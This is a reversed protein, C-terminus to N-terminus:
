KKPPFFPQEPLKINGKGVENLAIQAQPNPDLKWRARWNWLAYDSCTGGHWGIWQRFNNYTEYSQQGWRIDPADLDYIRDGEDPILRQYVPKSTDMRWDPTSSQAPFGDVWNHSWVEREFTWGSKVIRSVGKPFLTAIPVVKASAGMNRVFRGEEEDVISETLSPYVVAGLKDSQDRTGPDFPAAGKPRMGDMKIEISAWLIWIDVSESTPGLAASVRFTKSDACSVQRQNPKGEVPAGGSWQIQEWEDTSNRPYTVAEVTVSRGDHKLTAWNKAGQVNRQTAGNVTFRVIKFPSAPSAAIGRESAGTM